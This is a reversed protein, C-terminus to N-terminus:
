RMINVTTFILQDQRFNHAALLSRMLMLAMPKGVINSAGVVVVNQGQVPINESELSSGPHERCFPLGGFAARSRHLGENQETCLGAVGPRRRGPDSCARAPLWALGTAERARQMGAASLKALAKGDIVKAVM